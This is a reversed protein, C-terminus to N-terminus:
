SLQVNVQTEWFRQGLSHMANEDEADNRLVLRLLDSMLTGANSLGRGQLKFHRFGLERLRAIEANTQALVSHKPSTLMNRVDQCGNGQQKKEFHATKFGSFDLSLKSLADYHLHRIPCNRICYENVILIYREKDELQELLDYNLVDDPHVMVEDYEDALRKYVDLKGKGRDGTIKLISSVLRLQPYKQRLYTRLVDSALIVSNRGTPNSQVAARCLTNGMNDNLHEERLMLNTFTLYIAINRKRYEQIATSIETNERLLHNLVRGSNWTCLPSGHVIHFPEFKLINKCFDFFFVLELDDVFAGSVDWVADPWHPNLYPSHASMRTSIKPKKPRFLADDRGPEETLLNPPSSPFTVCETYRM